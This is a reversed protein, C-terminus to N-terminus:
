AAFKYDAFMISAPHVSLAEALVISREKGLQVRGNEIASINTQSIGTERALDLQSWGKLERLERVMEGPTMSISEGAGVLESRDIKM